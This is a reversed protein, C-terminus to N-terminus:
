ESLGNDQAAAKGVAIHYSTECVLASAFLVLDRAASEIRCAPMAIAPMRRAQTQRRHGQDGQQSAHDGHECSPGSSSLWTGVCLQLKQNGSGRRSYMTQRGNFPSHSLNTLAGPSASKASSAYRFLIPTKSVMRISSLSMNTNPAVRTM